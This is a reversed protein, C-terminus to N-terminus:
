HQFSSAIHSLERVMGFQCSRTATADLGSMIASDVVGAVAPGYRQYKNWSVTASLVFAHAEM